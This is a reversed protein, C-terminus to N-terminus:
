KLFKVICHAIKEAAKGDGFYGVKKRSDSRCEQVHLATTIRRISTGALVNMRSKVTETWETEDRLTVCPVNLFFAEKQLGGSDTLIVRASESLALMDIYSLPDIVMVGKKVNLRPLLKRTRPHLPIVVPLRKGISKLASFITGLRSLDDTNEARHVTALYYQKTELGLQRLISSQQHARVLNYQVSDFMVNGTNVVCPGKAKQLSVRGSILDGKSIINSFGENRLNRIANGTPSFLLASIHDTLVRNIEEPMSRNYSRLGAEVHAVPIHIKAAALAGALTSNTDGYVLVIDPREKILVGEIKEIMKGTQAGQSLSGVGLNYDPEALCLEQFFVKSMAHDYHQGTHVLVERIGYKRLARSVPAAKIFQPRAGIVTVIKM